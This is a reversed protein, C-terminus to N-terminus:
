WIWQDWPPPHVEMSVHFSYFAPSSLIVFLYVTCCWKISFMYVSKWECFYCQDLWLFSYVQIYDISTFSFLTQICFYVEFQSWPAWLVSYCRAYLLLWFADICMISLYKCSVLTFGNSYKLLLLLEGLLFGRHLLESKVSMKICNSEFFGLSHRTVVMFFMFWLVQKDYNCLHM